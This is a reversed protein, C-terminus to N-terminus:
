QTVGVFVSRVAPTNCEPRSNIFRTGIHYHNLNAVSSFSDIILIYFFNPILKLLDTSSVPRARPAGPQPQRNDLTEDVKM